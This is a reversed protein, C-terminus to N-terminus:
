EVGVERACRVEVREPDNMIGCPGLVTIVLTSAIIGAIIRERFTM